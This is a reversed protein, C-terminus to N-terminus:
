HGERAPPQSCLYIETGPGLLSFHLLSPREEGVAPRGAKRHREQHGGSGAGLVPPLTQSATLALFFIFSLPLTRVSCWSLGPFLSMLVFFFYLPSGCKNINFYGCFYLNTLENM